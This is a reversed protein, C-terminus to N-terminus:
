RGGRSRKRDDFFKRQEPTRPDKVAVFSVRGINNATCVDMVKRIM